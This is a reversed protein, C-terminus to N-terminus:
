CFFFRNWTQRSKYAYLIVERLYICSAISIEDQLAIKDNELCITWSTIKPRATTSTLDQISMQQKLYIQRKLCITWSTIKQDKTM